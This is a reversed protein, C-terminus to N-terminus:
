AFPYAGEGTMTFTYEGSGLRFAVHTDTTETYTDTKAEGSDFWVDGGETITVNGSEGRIPVYMDAVTNAPVSVKLTLNGNEDVAWDVAITGHITEMSGKVYTLDGPIQPKVSIVDYGAEAATIGLIDAYLWTSFGGGLFCHNQSRWMRGNTGGQGVGEWDPHEWYEWLSTAGSEIMFGLGPYTTQTMMLYTLDPRGYQTLAAPLARVGAVGVSMHGEMDVLIVNELSELVTEAKDEPVLGFALAIANVTETNTDYYTGKFFTRNFTKYIAEAKKAFVAADENEGLATAIKTTLDMAHYYYATGVCQASMNNKDPGVWDWHMTAGMNRAPEHAMLWEAHRKIMDYNERLVGLDGTFQYVDWPIVMLAATWVVDGGAYATSSGTLNQPDPSQLNIFGNEEQASQWDRFWRTYLTAADYNYMVAESTVHADGLWPAKERHPCDLPVAILNSLQSNVYAAQIKNLFENSSEFRGTTVVDTHIREVRINDATLGEYGSIEAM